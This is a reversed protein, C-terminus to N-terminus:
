LARLPRTIGKLALTKLPRVLGKLLKYPDGLYGLCGHFRLVGFFARLGRVLGELGGSCTFVELFGFAKRGVM